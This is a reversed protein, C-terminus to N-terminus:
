DVFLFENTLILVQALQALPSLADPASEKRNLFAAGLALESPEPSRGLVRRYLRCVQNEDPNTSPNTSSDGERSVTMALKGAQQQVFPSNMLFLAQQPVTTVFRKPSTADPVAFDFTRYVGDLNQRDIFGYVTRRTPLPTEQLAVSPGGMTTDLTGAVALVSDRMAEFDLRQRNYRWLWRNQPDRELCDPRLESSQQYTSSLMIRRHLAKISWGSDLFSRALDDLLDPHSPPDSRLGFDSPTTVLAQGFHWQWVRNVLVRPTLPNAPDVIARALELRGSGTAFPKREPGALVKLFQRPVPKGPRGPNGRVFIHPDVPTPADRLVMARPVVPGAPDKKGDKRAAEKRPKEKGTRPQPNAPAAVNGAGALRIPPLDNEAPEISSAFVGYLSYYDASPIPDYKHDHCRACGVTLGLLGRGILDIRDDIIENIDKLFRRGVTLFGMAALPGPDGQLDLQDAAIQQLLFRNFPLDNNFSRIVYDRYTYAFPYKREETFVYGKTDAYRAVDLWHRGWREGYQPSALLRDVVRAFADPASDAAFAAFEAATPPIGLLDLTARRILTRRDAAASPAIGERELRALVFSDVPSRVWERNKVTPPAVARLAAFAWHGAGSDSATKVAAAAATALTSSDGWPAGMEVGRRLAAVDPAPLKVKPPMKLEDHSHAVAQVLLSEDPKGPVIAPGSSGGKLIAERSDLRLESSQKQPGHCKQCSAILVPRVSKEFFDVAARHDSEGALGARPTSGLLIVLVILVSVCAHPAPGAHPAPRRVGGPIGRATRDSDLVVRENSM